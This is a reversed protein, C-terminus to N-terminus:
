FPVLRDIIDGSSDKLVAESAFFTTFIYLINYTIYTFLPSLLKYVDSLHFGVVNPLHSLGALAGSTKNKVLLYIKYMSLYM